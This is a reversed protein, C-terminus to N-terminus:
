GNPNIGEVIGTQDIFRHVALAIKQEKSMDERFTFSFDPSRYSVFAPLILLSAVVSILNEERLTPTPILENGSALTFPSESQNAPQYGCEDIKVLAGRVYEILETDSFKPNYDYYIEIKQGSTLSSTITLKNTTSSFSWNSSSLLTGDVYVKITSSDINEEFLTWIKLTRYIYTEPNKRSIKFDDTLSRIKDIIRNIQSM